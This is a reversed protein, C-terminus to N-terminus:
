IKVPMALYSREYRVENSFCSVLDPRSLESVTFWNRAAYKMWPTVSIRTLRRRSLEFM